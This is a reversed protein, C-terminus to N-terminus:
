GKVIQDVPPEVKGTLSFSPVRQVHPKSQDVVQGKREGAVRAYDATAAVASPWSWDPVVTAHEAVLQHWVVIPRQSPVTRRPRRSVTGMAEALRLPERTGM